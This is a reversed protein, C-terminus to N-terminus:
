CDLLLSPLLRLSLELWATCDSSLASTEDFWGVNDESLSESAISRFERLGVLRYLKVKGTM